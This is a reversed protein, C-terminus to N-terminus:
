QQLALNLHWACKEKSETSITRVIRVDEDTITSTVTRFTYLMGSEADADCREDGEEDCDYVTPTRVSFMCLRNSRDICVPSAISPIECIKVVIFCLWVEGDLHRANCCEHRTVDNRIRTSSRIRGKCVDDNSSSRAM